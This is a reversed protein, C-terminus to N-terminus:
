LAWYNNRRRELSWDWSGELKTDFYNQNDAFTRNNAQALKPDSSITSSNDHTVPIDLYSITIGASEARKMYDNDEFYIPYLNEDFLGIRRVADEGIAFTQWHPFSGTLTIADFSADSLKELAGPLYVTDASSFFWVSEFPFCKIGLNWSGAVGQNSPMSLVTMKEICEPLDLCDMGLGNDIILLHEIPYDISSVMRQLLDYRNLVPVILKVTRDEAFDTALAKAM